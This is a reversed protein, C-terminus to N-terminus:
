KRHMRPETTVAMTSEVKGDGPLVLELYSRQCNTTIKWQTCVMSTFGTTAMMTTVARNRYTRPIRGWEPGSAKLTRPKVVCATAMPRQHSQRMYSSNSIENM